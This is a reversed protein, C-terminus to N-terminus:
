GHQALQGRAPREGRQKRTVSEGRRRRRYVPRQGVPLFGPPRAAVTLIVLDPGQVLHRRRGDAGSGSEHAAALHDIEATHEVLVCRLKWATVPVLGHVNRGM